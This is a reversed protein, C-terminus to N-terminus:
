GAIVYAPGCLYVTCLNPSNRIQHDLDSQTPYQYTCYRDSVLQTLHYQPDGFRYGEDAYDVHLRLHYCTPLAWHECILELLRNSCDISLHELNGVRVDTEQQM